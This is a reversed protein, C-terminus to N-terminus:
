TLFSFFVTRYKTSTIWVVDTKTTFTHRSFCEVALWRVPVAQELSSMRYYDSQHLDRSLGFDAIRVKLSEDVRFRRIFELVAM